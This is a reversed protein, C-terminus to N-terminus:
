SKKKLTMEFFKMWGREGLNVEGTEHWRGEADLKISYRVPQQAPLEWALSKDKVTVKFEGTRGNSLFSRLRYEKTAPDYSLVAFAEHVPAGEKNKGLGIISLVTGGAQKSIKEVVHSDERKGDILHWGDGEWEGVIFDLDKMAAHITRVDPQAPQQTLMILAAIAFMTRSYHM